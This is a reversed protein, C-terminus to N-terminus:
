GWGRRNWQMLVVDCGSLGAAVQSLQDSSEDVRGAEVETVELGERNRAEHAILQGYRRVGSEPRGLHLFGLDRLEAAM